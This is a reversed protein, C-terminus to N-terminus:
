NPDAALRAAAAPGHLMEPAYPAGAALGRLVDVPADRLADHWRGADIWARQEESDLSMIDAWRMLLNTVRGIHARRKETVCAWPPLEVAEPPHSGKAAM